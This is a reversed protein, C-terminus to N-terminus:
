SRPTSVRARVASAIVSAAFIACMSLVITAGPPLDGLEIALLVGIALGLVGAAISLALVPRLRDSLRLASAGPLVLLATALVVGVIKMATVIAVCLLVMLSLKMVRAPVGFAGASVEDFAWFLMPRRLLWLLILVAISSAVAAWAENWSVALVQGFLISEYGTSGSLTGNRISLSLLMGGMAMSAVLFVGIATDERVGKRESLLGMGVSCVICFGLVIAWSVLWPPGGISGAVSDNLAAHTTAQGLYGLIAALGIGGFASHSVGQGVFGLRKLVVIVSLVACVVVVSLGGVLGPLIMSRLMPDSLWEVTEM